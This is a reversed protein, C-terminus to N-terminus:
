IQRGFRYNSWIEGEKKYKFYIHKEEQKLSTGGDLLQGENNMKQM